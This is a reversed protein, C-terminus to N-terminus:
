ANCHQYFILSLLRNFHSTSCTRKWSESLLLFLRPQDLLSLCVTGYQRVPLLSSLLSPRRLRTSTFLGESDVVTTLQPSLPRWSRPARLKIGHTTDLADWNPYRLFSDGQRRLNSPLAGTRILNSSVGDVVVNDGAGPVRRQPANNIYWSRIISGPRCAVETMSGAPRWWRRWPLATGQFDAATRSLGRGCWCCHGLLM